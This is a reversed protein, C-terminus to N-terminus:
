KEESMDILFRCAELMRETLLRDDMEAGGAIKEDLLLKFYAVTLDNVLLIRKESARGQLLPRLIALNRQQQRASQLMTKVSDPLGTRLEPFLDYDSREGSEPFLRIYDKVVHILRDTHRGFFMHRMGEPYRFAHRCFIEWSMLYIREPTAPKLEKERQALDSSYAELLDVCAFLVLEDLDRFYKYLIASSMGAEAAVNRITVAAMGERRMLEQAARILRLTNERVAEESLPPRGM